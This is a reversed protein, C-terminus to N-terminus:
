SGADGGHMRIIVKTVDNLGIHHVVMHTTGGLVLLAVTLAIWHKPKM